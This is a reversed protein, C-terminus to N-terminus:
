KKYQKLEDIHVNDMCYLCSLQVFQSVSIDISKCYEKIDLIIEKRTNCVIKDYNNKIYQKDYEQKHKSSM